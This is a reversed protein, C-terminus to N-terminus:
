GSFYGNWEYLSQMVFRSSTTQEMSVLLQHEVAFKITSVGDVPMTLKFVNAVASSFLFIKHYVDCCSFQKSALVHM